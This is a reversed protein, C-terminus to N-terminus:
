GIREVVMYSSRQVTTATVGGGSVNQAWQLLFTGSTSTEISGEITTFNDGTGLGAAVSSGLATVRALAAILNTTDDFITVQAKLQTVGVTGGLAVKIGEAAGANNTFLYLKFNYKASAALTTTLHDDDQLTTSNDVSEDATKYAVPGRHMREGVVTGSVSVDVNQSTDIDIATTSNTGIRLADAGITYLEGLDAAARLEIAAANTTIRDLRLTSTASVRQIELGSGSTFTPTETGFGIDQGYITFRSSVDGNNAVEFNFQGTESGATNSVVKALLQGYPFETASSNNGRYQLSCIESGNASINSVLKIDCRSATGNDFTFTNTSKQARFFEVGGVTLAITDANPLSIYTDTDGDFSYGVHTLLLQSTDITLGPLSNTGIQIADNTTTFLTALDPGAKLVVTSPTTVLRSLSIYCDGELEQIINGGVKLINEGPGTADFGFFKAGQGGYLSLAIADTGGGNKTVNLRMASYGVTADPDSWVCSISGTKIPTNASNFAGYALASETTTDAPTKSNFLSILADISRAEFHSDPRFVNTFSGIQGTSVFGNASQVGIQSNLATSNKALIQGEANLTYFVNLMESSDTTDITFINNVGEKIQFASATNDTLSLSHLGSATLNTFTAANPATTGIALPSAWDAGDLLDSNLNSVLTTSAVVLPATGTALTSRYQQTNTIAYDLSILESSDTTDIKFVSNANELIEFVSATNDALEFRAGKQGVTVQKIDLRATLSTNRGLGLRNNTDDWFFNTNDQNFAGGTVFLVSGATFGAVGSSTAAVEVFASGNWVELKNTNNIWWMQGEKLAASEHWAGGWYHELRNAATWAGSVGTSIYTDGAVPSGPPSAQKAIVGSVRAELARMDKNFTVFKNRVASSAIEDLSLIETTM